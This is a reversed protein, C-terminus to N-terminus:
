GKEGDKSHEASDKVSPSNGAPSKGHDSKSSPKLPALTGANGSTPSSNSPKKSHLPLTKSARVSDQEDQDSKPSEVGAFM